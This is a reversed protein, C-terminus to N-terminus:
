AMSTTPPHDPQLRSSLTRPLGVTTRATGKPRVKRAVLILEHVDMLEALAAAMVGTLAPGIRAVEEGDSRLLHDKLEGLTMDAIRALADLDIDYNVRMVSDVRLGRSLASAARPLGV